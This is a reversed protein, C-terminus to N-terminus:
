SKAQNIANIIETESYLNDLEYDPTIGYEISNYDKDTLVNNSSLIIISGDPTQFFSISSAGGSSKQGLVPIGLEKAISATLNAASFTVGSTKVFIKYKSFQAPKDGVVRSTIKENTLPNKHHYSIEQDTFLAFMRLVAGLNGGLNFSLDLVINEVNEDFTEIISKLENPTNVTFGSIYIVATKGSDIMEFPKIDIYGGKVGFHNVLQNKVKDFEKYFNSINEGQVAGDYTTKYGDFDYYGLNRHSSHLDDLRSVIEYIERGINGTKFKDEHKKLFAYADSINREEKLGYFYNLTFAMFNYSAVRVESPIEKKNKSSELIDFTDQLDLSSIDIGFIKEGNYYTNFYISQNFILNVIHFPMIIKDGKKIIKFGYKDLDYTIQNGDNIIPELHKIGESYNTTGSKIYASFFSMDNVIIQNKSINIQISYIENVDYIVSIEIIEDNIKNFSIKEHNYVGDLMKFYEDLEVYPLEHNEYAYLSTRYNKIDPYEVSKNEFDIEFAVLENESVYVDKELTAEDFKGKIYYKIKYTGKQALNVLSDDVRVELNTGDYDKGTVGELWNPKTQNVKLHFDKTGNITPKGDEVNVNTTKSVVDDGKKATYTVVYQGKKFKNTVSDKEIKALADHTVDIAAGDADKASIGDLFNYSTQGEHINISDKVGLIVIKGLVKVNFEKTDQKKNLKLMATLKINSNDSKRTVKITTKEDKTADVKLQSEDSSKWSIEVTDIKAYVSFDKYAQTSVNLKDKAEIIKKSDNNSCAVVFIATILLLFIATLKKIL